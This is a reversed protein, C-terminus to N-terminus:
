KRGNKKSWPWGAGVRGRPDDEDKIDLWSEDDVSKQNKNTIIHNSSDSPIMQKLRELEREGQVLLSSIYSSTSISPNTTHITKNRRFEDRVQYIVDQKLAPDELRKASRIFSRYLHLVKQRQIFYKLSFRDDPTLSATRSCLFRRYLM